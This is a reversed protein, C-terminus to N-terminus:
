VMKSKTAWTVVRDLHVRWIWRVSKLMADTFSESSTAGSTDCSGRRHGGNGLQPLRSQRLGCVGSVSDHRAQVLLRLQSDKSDM